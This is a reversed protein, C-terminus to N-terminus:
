TERLSPPLSYTIPVPSAQEQGHEFVMAESTAGSAGNYVVIISRQKERSLFRACTVATNRAQFVGALENTDQYLLFYM